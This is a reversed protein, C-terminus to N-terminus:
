YLEKVRVTVTFGTGTTVCIIMGLEYVVLIPAVYWNEGCIMSDPADVDRDHYLLLVDTAVISLLPCIDAIPTPVVM